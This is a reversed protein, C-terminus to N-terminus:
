NISDCAPTNDYLGSQFQYATLPNCGTNVSWYNSNVDHTSNQRIITDAIINNNFDNSNIKFSSMNTAYSYTMAYNNDRFQNNQIIFNYFGGPNKGSTMYYNIGAHNGNIDNGNITTSYHNSRYTTLYIGQTFGSINSDLINNDITSGNYPAYLSVGYGTGSGIINTNKVKLGSAGTLYIGNNSTTISSSGIYQNTSDSSVGISVATLVINSFNGGSINIDNIRTKSGGGFAVGYNSDSFNSDLINVSNVTSTSSHGPALGAVCYKRNKCNTRIINNDTLTNAYKYIDIGTGALTGNKSVNADQIINYSSYIQIGKDYGIINCNKIKTYNNAIFIGYTGTGTITAGHCDLVKPTSTSGTEDMRIIGDNDSDTKTFNGYCLDLQNSSTKNATFSLEDYSTLDLCNEIIISESVTNTDNTGDYIKAHLYYTGSLDSDTISWTYNCDTNASSSNCNELHLTGIYNTDATFTSSIQYYFNVDIYDTNTDDQINISIETSGNISTGGTPSLFSITPVENTVEAQTTEQANASSNPSVNACEFPINELIKTKNLGHKTQYSIKIDSTLVTGEECTESSYIIFNEEQAQSLDFLFAHNNKDILNLDTITISADNNKINLVFNGDTTVSFESLSFEGAIASIEKSNSGITQGDDLFGTLISVVVLAIVVVIAIIILYEITGQAKSKLM